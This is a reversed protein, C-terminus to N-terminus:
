AVTETLVKRSHTELFFLVLLTLIEVLFRRPWSIGLLGGGAGVKSDQM